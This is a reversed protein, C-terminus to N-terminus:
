AQEVGHRLAPSCSRGRLHVPARLSAVAATPATSREGPHRAGGSRSQAEGSGSSIELELPAAPLSSITCLSGLFFLLPCSGVGLSLHPFARPFDRQNRQTAAPNPLHRPHPSPSSKPKKPPLLPQFRCRQVSARSRCGSLKRRHRSRLAPSTGTPGSIGWARCRAVSSASCPCIRGGPSVLDWLSCRFGAAKPSRCGRKSFVDAIKIVNVLTTRRSRPKASFNHSVKRMRKKKEFRACTLM